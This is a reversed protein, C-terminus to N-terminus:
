NGSAQSLGSRIAVGKSQNQKHFVCVIDDLIISRILETSGDASADDIVVIGRGIPLFVQRVKAIITNLTDIEDNINLIIVLIIGARYTCGTFFEILKM